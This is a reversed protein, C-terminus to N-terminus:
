TFTSPVSSSTVGNAACMLRDVSTCYVFCSAWVLNFRFDVTRCTASWRDTLLMRRMVLCQFSAVLLTLALHNESNFHRFILM